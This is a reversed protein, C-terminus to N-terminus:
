PWSGSGGRASRALAHRRVLFGGTRGPLDPSHHGRDLLHEAALRVAGITDTAVSPVQDVLRNLVVVRTSKALTRIAADSMRSSTLVVADVAPVIRELAEHEAAASEQSEALVM